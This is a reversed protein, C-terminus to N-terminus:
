CAAASASCAAPVEPPPPSPPPPPPHDSPRPEEPNTHAPLSMEEEERKKGKEEVQLQPEILARKKSILTFEPWSPPASVCPFWTSSTFSLQLGKWAARREEEKKERGDNTQLCLSCSLM